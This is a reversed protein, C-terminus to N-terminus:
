NMDHNTKDVLNFSFRDKIIKGVCFVVNRENKEENGGTFVNGLENSLENGLEKIM